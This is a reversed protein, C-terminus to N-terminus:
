PNAWSDVHFTVPLGVGPASCSTPYRLFAQPSVGAPCSPGEEIIERQGPCAREADHSPDAPVGWFTITARALAVAESIGRSVVSLGYDGNSRVKADLVVSTGNVAFGFRAPAGPPPVMNYLAYPGAIKNTVFPSISGASRALQVVGVQSSSPCEPVPEFFLAN